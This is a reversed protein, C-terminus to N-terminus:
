TEYWIGRPPGVILLRQKQHRDRLEDALDKPGFSSIRGRKAGRNWQRTLKATDFPIGMSVILQGPCQATPSSLLAAFLANRRRKGTWRGSEAFIAVTWGADHHEQKLKNVTETTWCTKSDVVYVIGVNAPIRNVSNTPPQDVARGELFVVRRTATDAPVDFREG